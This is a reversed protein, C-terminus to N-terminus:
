HVLGGTARKYFMKFLENPRHKLSGSIYDECWEGKASRNVTHSFNYEPHYYLRRAYPINWVLATRGKSNLKDTEVDSSANQLTGEDFPVVESMVIEHMLQEGTQKAALLQAKKLANIKSSDLRVNVRLM